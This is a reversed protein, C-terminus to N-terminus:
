LAREPYDTIIGDVGLSKIRDIDQQENVTWPILKMGKQHVKKVFASDTVLKYYPSYIEPQFSLKQLNEEMTGESVLYAIEVTPHNQYIVELVQVDFSQLNVKDRINKENVVQMVLDVFEKPQPQYINYEEPKSKIEINYKVEKLDHHRIYNEVSDIVDSLLPKYTKQAQQQPFKENGKSGADFLRISDYPMEYLNYSKEKAKPIPQGDPQLMYLHHMFPEHSVVVRHDKSIVVDLEIVEVGKKIASLFGPISNEPFNGRDGRHGQVAVSKLQQAQMEQKTQNDQNICSFICCVYFVLSIFELSKKM